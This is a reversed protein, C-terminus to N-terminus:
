KMVRNLYDRVAAKRTMENNPKPITIGAVNLKEIQQKSPLKAFNIVKKEIMASREDGGYREIYTIIGHCEHCLIELDSGEVMLMNTAFQGFNDKNLSGVTKKHNVEIESAKFSKNCRQCEYHWIMRGTSSKQRVRKSQLLGLKVPHKSWVRRLSSRLWNLYEGETKIYGYM